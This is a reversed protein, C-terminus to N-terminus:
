GILKNWTQNGVIGDPSCSHHAQWQCVAEKTNSGFIGDYETGVRFQIYRVAYGSNGVATMPKSLIRNIAGWTQDGAIGDVGIHVVSQFRKVAKRTCTGAIGDEALVNGKSDRMKFRNMIKQISSDDNSSGSSSGSSINVVQNSPTLFMQAEATRRRVLGEYVKSGAYRWMLFDTTITNADRVGRCINRYLTSGLLGAVGINYAMSALADFQNQNLTINKSSLDNKIPAAYNNDILNELMQCAQPETVSSLGKIENGTMGYGLTRVGVEDLYVTPSFGEFSKVLDICNKSVLGM